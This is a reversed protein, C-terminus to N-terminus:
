NYPSIMMKGFQYYGKGFMVHIPNANILIQYWETRLYALTARPLLLTMSTSELGINLQQRPNLVVKNDKESIFGNPIIFSAM